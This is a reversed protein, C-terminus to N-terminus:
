RCICKIKTYDRFKRNNLFFLNRESTDNEEQQYMEIWRSYMWRRHIRIMDGRQYITERKFIDRGWTDSNM